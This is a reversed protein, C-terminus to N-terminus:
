GLYLGGNLHLTQGTMFESERSLLYSILAALEDVKGFRKMPTRSKIEGAYAEPVQDIMGAEMYGLAICNATINAPALELALTRTYAELAGKTAAYASAGASGIHAVVSSVNIIRGGIGRNRMGPIFAKCVNMASQVNSEFLNGVDTSDAKWSMAGFSQGALNIIAYPIEETNDRLASVVQKPDTLDCRKLAYRGYGELPAESPRRDRYVCTFYFRDCISLLEKILPQGLGGGAGTLIVNV